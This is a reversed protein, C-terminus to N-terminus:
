ATPTSETGIPRQDASSVPTTIGQAHAMAEQLGKRLELPDALAPLTIVEEGTGSIRLVGFGFIRGFVSQELEIQEVSNLQLEDTERQLLGRKYIIRQNTVGIETTWIPIMLLIFLIVSFVVFILAAIPHDTSFAIIAVAFGILMAGYAVAYNLWHFHAVYHVSENDALSKNIYSM